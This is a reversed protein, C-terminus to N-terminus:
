HRPMAPIDAMWMMTMGVIGGAVALAWFIKITRPSTIDESFGPARFRILGPHKALFAAGGRVYIWYSGMVWLAILVFDFMLVMPNMSRPYFYDWVGNTIGTLDGVAMVLWPINGWVLCGKILKDYGAKLSPNEAVYKQSRIRFAIGNIITVAIFLVWAHKFIIDM